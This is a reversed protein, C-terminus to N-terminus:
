EEKNIEFIVEGKENKVIVHAACSYWPDYARLVMEILNLKSEEIEM